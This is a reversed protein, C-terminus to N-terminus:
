CEKWNKGIAINVELPVDLSMVNEMADRVLSQLTEIEHDPAEFILEDHIQLVMYSELGKEKLLKDVKLMAIKILDAASGQIPTNTALREAAARIQPNRSTIEPIARERGILTVAKGTERAKEKYSELFDKVSPFRAFYTHIFAEAEKPHIHIAQSLGYAQQGYLIGFNVAKAQYRQQSTVSDLPVQFILAATHKHIDEGREFAGILNPDGCFHALLRLEIQSYDASLFSWGEKQPKFAERIRLGQETRVPINQLNPDQSSLRGTAAVSQNFNCHIRHDHPNVQNPLSEVYTSRLKELTRYELMLDIIPHMHRVKELEDASTSMGSTTKKGTKVGLKELTKSLQIPSNLNFPEGAHKQINESLLAIDATLESSFQALFGVDLFIGHAEMGQLVQMLPLELDFLIHSLQRENLQKELLQKLKITFDIDECCYTTVKDIPVLDMTIESKGKGILDAIPIKQKGFYQLALADLSHQRQNANLIYSALLTDFSLKKIQIGYRSLVHCDYKANHGYFGVEDSSFLQRIAALVKEEGLKGNLPVYWAHTTDYGLGIGVLKAVFPDSSTTETDFCVEKQQLLSQILKTLSEEDDVLCYNCTSTEEAATPSANTLTKLMSHFDLRTFFQRLADNNPSEMEFLNLPKEFPVDLHVTVLKKSLLATDKNERITDQKKQGSVKEPNDLISELSGFEKLLTAATKPGFGPLGPVNDSTDGIMALYDTILEPPVGHIEEVDAIGIVKNDKRTHVLKIKDNVLQCMDKDNTCILVEHGESAAWVAISAMTDDAEVNPMEVMPWGKLQCFERAWNVQYPLDKPTERRTAKYADFLAKRSGISNPGDFVVAIHTTDFSNLIKTVSNVFGFLANTSEGKSNTMNQIAHYSAYLYGSADIILLKAM